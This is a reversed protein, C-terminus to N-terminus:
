PFREKMLTDGSSAALPQFHPIALRRNPRMSQASGADAEASFEGSSPIDSNGNDLKARAVPFSETPTQNERSHRKRCSASPADRLRLFIQQM